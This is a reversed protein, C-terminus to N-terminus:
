FNISRCKKSKQIDGHWWVVPIELTHADCIDCDEKDNYLAVAHKQMILNCLMCFVCLLGRYQTCHCVERWDLNLAQALWAFLYSTPLMPIHRYTYMLKFAWHRKSPSVVRKEERRAEQEGTMLHCCEAANSKMVDVRCYIGSYCTRWHALVLQYWNCTTFICWYDFPDKSCWFSGKVVFSLLQHGNMRYTAKVIKGTGLISRCIQGVIHSQWAEKSIYVELLVYLSNGFLPGLGEARGSTSGVKCM